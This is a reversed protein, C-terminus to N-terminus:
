DINDRAKYHIRAKLTVVTLSFSIDSNKSSSNCDKFSDIQSQEGVEVPLVLAVWSNM